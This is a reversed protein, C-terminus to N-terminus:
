VQFLTLDALDMHQSDVYITLNRPSINHHIADSSSSVEAEIDTEDMAMQKCTQCRQETSCNSKCHDSRGTSLHEQLETVIIDETSKIIQEHFGRRQWPGWDQAALHLEKLLVPLRRIRSLRQQQRLQDEDKLNETYYALVADDLSDFGAAAVAKLIHVLREGTLASPKLQSTTKPLPMATDVANHTEPMRKELVLERRGGAPAAGDVAEGPEVQAMPRDSLFNPLEQGSDWSLNPTSEEGWVETMVPTPFFMDHSIGLGDSPVDRHDVAMWEGLFGDNKMGLNNAATQFALESRDDSSRNTPRMTHLLEESQKTNTPPPLRPHNQAEGHAGTTFHGSESRTHVPISHGPHPIAAPNESRNPEM